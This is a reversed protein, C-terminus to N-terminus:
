LGIAKVKVTELNNSFYMLVLNIDKRFLCLEKKKGFCNPTQAFM